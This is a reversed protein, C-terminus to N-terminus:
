SRSFFSRVLEFCRDEQQLYVWHAANEIGVHASGKFTDIAALDSASHFMTNKDKGYIYLLRVQNLDPMHCESILAGGLIGEKFMHFYPYAMRCLANLNTRSGSKGKVRDLAGVPSM